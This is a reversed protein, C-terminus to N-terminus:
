CIFREFEEEGFSHEVFEALKNTYAVYLRNVLGNEINGILEEAESKSLSRLFLALIDDLEDLSDSPEVDMGFEKLASNLLELVVKDQAERDKLM